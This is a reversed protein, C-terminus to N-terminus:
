GRLIEANRAHKLEPTSKKFQRNSKVLKAYVTETTLEKVYVALTSGTERSNFMVFPGYGYNAESLYDAGAAEVIARHKLNIEYKPEEYLM